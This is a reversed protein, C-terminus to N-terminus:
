QGARRSCLHWKLVNVSPILSSLFRAEAPAPLWVQLWIFLTLANWSLHLQSCVTLEPEARLGDGLSWVSVNRRQDWFLRMSIRQRRRFLNNLRGCLSYLFFCVISPQDTREKWLGSENWELVSSFCTVLVAHERSCSGTRRCENRSQHESVVNARASNTDRYSLTWHEPIYQNTCPDVLSLMCIFNINVTHTCTHTQAM